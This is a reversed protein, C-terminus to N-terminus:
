ILSGEEKARRNYKGQWYLWYVLGFGMLLSIVTVPMWGMWALFKFTAELFHGIAFAIQQM